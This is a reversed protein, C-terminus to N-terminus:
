GELKKIREEIEAQTMDQYPRLGGKDDTIDGVLAMHRAMSHKDWNNIDGDSIELPKNEEMREIAKNLKKLKITAILSQIQADKGTLSKVRDDKVVTSAVEEKRREVTRESVGAEKALEKNTGLPNKVIASAIKDINKAKDARKTPKKITM